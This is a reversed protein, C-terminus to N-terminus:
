ECAPQAPGASQLRLAGVGLLTIRGGTDIAKLEVTAEKIQIVRKGPPKDPSSAESVWNGQLQELRLEWAPVAFGGAEGSRLPFIM